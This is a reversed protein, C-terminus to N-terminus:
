TDSVDNKTFPINGGYDKISRCNIDIDKVPMHNSAACQYSVSGLVCMVIFMFICSTSKSKM